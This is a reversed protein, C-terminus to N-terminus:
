YSPRRTSSGNDKSKSKYNMDSMEPVLIFMTAIFGIILFIWLVKVLIKKAKAKSYLPQKKKKRIKFRKRLRGSRPSLSYEGSALKEQLDKDDM